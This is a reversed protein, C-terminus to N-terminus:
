IRFRIIDLKRDLPGSAEWPRSALSENMGRGELICDNWLMRAPDCNKFHALFEDKSFNEDRKARLDQWQDNPDMPAGALKSAWDDKCGRRSMGRDIRHQEHKLYPFPVVVMFSSSYELSYGSFMRSM